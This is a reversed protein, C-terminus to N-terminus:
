ERGYLPKDERLTKQWEVPDKISTIGGTSAKDRMLKLLSQSNIAKKKKQIKTVSLGLKIALMEVQDLNKRNIGSIILEMINLKVLTLFIKFDFGSFTQLFKGLALEPNTLEPNMSKSNQIKERQNRSVTIFTQLSAKGKPEVFYAGPILHKKTPFLTLTM